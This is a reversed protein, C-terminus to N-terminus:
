GLDSMDGLMPYIFFVKSYACHSVGTIGASQSALTPPDSSDLFKLGAQAVYLSGMEVYFRFVLSPVTAWAQLGLVKPPRPPHIVLDLSRSWGPWCPSVGDRSFICVILQAHHRTGTIGAVWSASAHSDSSGLLQLTCHASIMGNCELRPSPTFNLRLCVFLYVFLIGTELIDKYYCSLPNTCQPM